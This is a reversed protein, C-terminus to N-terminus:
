SVICFLCALPHVRLTRGILHSGTGHKRVGWLCISKPSPYPIHATNTPPIPHFLSLLFMITAWGVLILEAVSTPSAFVRLQPRVRLSSQMVSFQIFTMHLFCIISRVADNPERRTSYMCLNHWCAWSVHISQGPEVELVYIHLIFAPLRYPICVSLCV